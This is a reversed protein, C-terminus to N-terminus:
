AYQDSMQMHFPNYLDYRGEENEDMRQRLVADLGSNTLTVNLRNVEQTTTVEVEHNGNDDSLFTGGGPDM